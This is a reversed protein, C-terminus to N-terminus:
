CEGGPAETNTSEIAYLRARAAALEGELVVVRAEAAAHREDWTAESALSQVYAGIVSVMSVDDSRGEAKCADWMEIAAAKARDERGSSGEGDPPVSVPRDHARVAAIIDRAASRQVEATPADSTDEIARAIDDVLADDGEGGAPRRGALREVGAILDRDDPLVTVPRADIAQYVGDRLAGLEAKVAELDADLRNALQVTEALRDAGEGDSPPSSSAAVVARAAAIGRDWGDAFSGRGADVDAVTLPPCVIADIERVLAEREGGDSRLREIERELADTCSTCRTANAGVEDGCGCFRREGSPRRLRDRIADLRRVWEDRAEVDVRPDDIGHDAMDARLVRLEDIAGAREGSDSASV